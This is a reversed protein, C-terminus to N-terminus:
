KNGANWIVIRIRRVNQVEKSGFSMKLSDIKEEKLAITESPSVTFSPKMASTSLVYILISIVVSILIGVIPNMLLSNLVKFFDNLGHGKDPAHAKKQRSRKM